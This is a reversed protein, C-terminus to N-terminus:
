PDSPTRAVRFGAFNFASTPNGGERWASRCWRRLGFWSGDRLTRLTGSAPGTPNTQPASTYPGRWDHCWERVNGSMDYAGVPSPSDVTQVSGNPSVNVGDFWGAPSTYPFVTLGLPNARGSSSTYNCRAAGSLTDSVLGYIWHKSGDWAAAREWEAETPLRYGDAFQLGPTVSDADILDWTGDYAPSLGKMQSLWNCFAVAGYWSVMEVPHTAMSFSAGGQGTRIEPTFAGSAYEILCDPHSVKLLIRGNFYVDGSSWVGGSSSELYGQALTWNLVECYQANTVEFKGIQYTSLTVEHRPLEDPQDYLDDDGDDRRGM